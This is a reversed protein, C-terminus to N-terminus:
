SQANVEAPFDNARLQELVDQEPIAIIWASRDRYGMSIFVQSDQLALGSAFEIDFSEFFVFENSFRRISLGCVSDIFWVFRHIYHREPQFRTEHIVALYGGRWPVLPTGGRFNALIEPGPSVQIIPRENSHSQYTLSITPSVQYVFSICGSRSDSLPMWNKEIKRAYPSEAVSCTEIENSKPSLRGWAIRHTSGDEFGEERALNWSLYLGDAIEFLRPDAAESGVDCEPLRLECTPVQVSVEEQQKLGVQGLALHSYYRM